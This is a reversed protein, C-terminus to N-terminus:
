SQRAPISKSLETGDAMVYRGGGARKARYMALDAARWIQPGDIGHEPYLAIGISASLDLTAGSVVFQKRFTSILDDAVKQADEQSHLDGLVVTFEEGGTRAVTDSERLRKKLRGAVEQLCIDGIAHGYNDNIQKFRDLDICLIAAKQNHRSASELTHRLRQDLHFRNPLNTLSDHNARHELQEYLRQRETVDIVMCFRAKRGEFKISHSSIEAYFKSGDKKRHTWPGTTRMTESEDAAIIKSVESRDAIEVLDLVHLGLFEQREYGYQSLAADNVRLFESSEPDYIFMPHPNSDFLLQYQAKQGEVEFIEKEMLTLIMGFEVFYKPVNWLQPAIVLHPFFSYFFVGTPFVLAWAVLGASATIVGVSSRRFDNWYLAANVLYLQTLIAYVGFDAQKHEILVMLWSGCTIAVLNNIWLIKWRNRIFHFGAWIAACESINALCLLLVTPGSGFSVLFVFVLSPLGIIVALLVLDRKPLYTATSALLFCVGALVLGSIGVASQMEQWFATAPQPMLVAFHALIFLWGIIWLLLRPSTRRRHLMGFLLVLLGLVLIEQWTNQV